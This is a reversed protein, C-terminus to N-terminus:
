RNGNQLTNNAKVSGTSPSPRNSRRVTARAVTPKDGTEAPWELVAAPHGDPGIGALEGWVDWGCCETKWAMSEGRGKWRLRHEDDTELVSSRYVRYRPVSDLPCSAYIRATSGM